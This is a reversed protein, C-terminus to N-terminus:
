ALPGGPAPGGDGGERSPGRGERSRGAPPEPAAPDPQEMAAPGFLSLLPVGQERRVLEQYLRERSRGVDDGHGLRGRLARLTAELRQELRERADADLALEARHVLEADLSELREEVVEGDVLEGEAVLEALEELARRAARSWPQRPLASGLRRLRGALDLREAPAEAGSAGGRSMEPALLRKRTAWAEAVPKRYYRLRRKIEVEQRLHREVVERLTRIVLESPIGEARWERSVRYDDPSLQFPAGRLELFASEIATFYEHEESRDFPPGAAPDTESM